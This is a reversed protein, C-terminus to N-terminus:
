VINKSANIVMNTGNLQQSAHILFLVSEAVEAPTLIKKLPHEEQMQEIIREDVSKTVNTLMFDPSICNSTINFKRYESNWTKSLQLLYGKNSTYIAFGIPPLNILYATLVNIIKGFKKKRFVNIAAQSISITPLINEEFSKLFENSDTKHFHKGQPAGVYVNNVLVDLDFTPILEILHNVEDTNTFNCKIATVNGSILTEAEESHHNYTFYVHHDENLSLAEVIAKGLGSSGGTILINM